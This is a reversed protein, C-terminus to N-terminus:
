VVSKRDELDLFQDQSSQSYGGVYVFQVADGFTHDIKGTVITSRNDTWEPSNQYTSDTNNRLSALTVGTPLVLSGDAVAKQLAGGPNYCGIGGTAAPDFANWAFQPNICTALKPTYDQNDLTFNVGLDVTTADTPVWRIQGRLNLYESGSGGPKGSALPYTNKLWGDSKIGQATFRTYVTDSVPVNVVGALEFTNFRGYGIAAEGGLESTPKKTRINIAGAESNRGFFVGQPGRLIEVAEVDYINPNAQSSALTGASFEDIFTTFASQSSIKEGGKLDSIGRISIVIERAGNRGSQAFSVNPTVKLYDLASQSNKETLAEGTLVTASVPVDLITEAKRRAFVVIADGEDAAEDAAPAAKDAAAQEDAAYSPAAMMVMMTSASIGLLLHRLTKDNKTISSM